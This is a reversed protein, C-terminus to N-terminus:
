SRSLVVSLSPLVCLKKKRISRMMAASPADNFAGQDEGTPPAMGLMTSAARLTEASGSGDWTMRSVSAAPM